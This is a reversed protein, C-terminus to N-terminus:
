EVGKLIKRRDDIKKDLAKLTKEINKLNTKFLDKEEIANSLNPIEDAIIQITEVLDLDYAYIQELEAVDIKVADFLGSYGYEAHEIRDATKELLKSVRDIDGLMSMDGSSLLERGVDSLISKQESLTKAMFTRQIKDATRSQERNKYGEFGPIKKILRELSNESNRIKEKLNDM